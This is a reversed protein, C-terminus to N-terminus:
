RYKVFKKVTQFLILVKQMEKSKGFFLFICISSISVTIMFKMVIAGVGLISFIGFTLYCCIFILSLVLIYKLFRWAYVLPNEKLGFKLVIYPDYWFNTFFRAIATAALIGVIGYQLGLFYSLILNITATGLVLYQGYTFFGYAGKFTWFGNQMGVIFFNIALLFPIDTPLVYQEGVWVSIFNNICFFILLASTGFFIFNLFNLTRFVERQRELSEKTVLNAVSSKINAFIIMLMSNVLAFLMVYNSFKGLLALGVFYSIFLNDTGNVMVGGIKSLFSAQVNKRIRKRVEVDIKLHNSESLFPYKKDVIRSIWFNSFLQVLLQVALYFLFNQTFVLVLIQLVNQIITFKIANITSLSIKQDADLLSIKYSFFYGSASNFLFFLYLIRLDETVTAPKHAIIQDLFPLLVLGTIFIVLGVIHYTKKLYRVIIAIQPKNNESLPKYLEYVFAATLGFEALSLMSLINSFLSNVGLYEASLYKIFVTRSVFGLVMQIIQAIFGFSINKASNNLRSQSM